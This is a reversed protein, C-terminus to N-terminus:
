PTYARYFVKPQAPDLPLILTVNTGQLVNTSFSTWTRFDASSQVVYSLGRKGQVDLSLLNGPLATLELRPAPDTPDPVDLPVYLNDIYAADAGISFNADKVYRWAFRNRGAGVNVVYRQWGVEGSWRQMRVGNVYFELFDWNAESSVKLDFAVAGALTNAAFELVSEQGNGLPGSRLAFRGAAATTSQLQWPATASNAWPPAALAAATFPPEFTYTATTPAFRATITYNRDMLLVLPNDTSTVTGEWGVFAFDRDPTAALSQTSGAPYPGSGPTVTGGAPATINLSYFEVRDNDVIVLSAQSQSGLVGGGQPNALELVVTEADEPDTDDILPVDFSKETEGAAFELTGAVSQYDSGAVASGDRTAYDVAAADGSPGTRRVVVAANGANEDARFVAASFAIASENDEITLTATLQGSRSYGTPLNTLILFVTEDGEPLTDDLVPVKFTKVTDNVAFQLTGQTATYDAGAQASGDRTAYDVTVATQLDGSRLVTITAEKANEAARYFAASFQLASLIFKEDGHIRAVRNRPLGNAHTFDGGIAMATDSQVALARVLADAGEGVEYGTDVSGNPNLRAYRLREVGGVETFDGAVLVKADPQVAVAWVSADVGTGPDFSTDLSGDANLRAIGARDVNNFKTFDGGLVIRGDAAVAVARVPADPGTGSAFTTDLSGDARFRAIYNYAGGGAGSFAGAVVVQNDAQVALAYVGGPAGVGPDFTTDISGDAMLRAIGTRAVGSMNGFDGGVVITGDLGVGLARVIGDAGFGTQFATDITGDANVRAIRMASLNDYNRFEGGILIRGDAQLALAHVAADAGAGPNFFSDLYGDTHLRVVRNLVVGDFETFVGGALIKDDSQVAVTYVPGNAGQGPNFAFDVSGPTEDDVITVVANTIAGLVTTGALSGAPGKPNRLAVQFAENGEGLADDLVRVQITKATEGARFVLTGSGDPALVYADGLFSLTGSAALYDSGAKATDNTTAYDVSVPNVTGGAREITISVLREFENVRTEAAAFGLACDDDAIVVRAVAQPGLSTTSAANTALTLLFTENTEVLVDDLLRVAVTLNSVGAGLTVTLNTAVFDEGGIATENTATLDVVATGELIGLRRLTIIANTGNENARFEAQSFEIATDDDILTLTAITQGGLPIGGGQNLLTLTITEGAEVELDDLIAIPLYQVAEGAAFAVTGNTSVFDVGPTATGASVVYDVTTAGNANGTRRIPIRAVGVSEVATYATQAFEITGDNDDITVTASGGGITAGPTELITMVVDERYEQTPDDIPYVPIEIETVGPAFVYVNTLTQYDSGNSAYGGLQVLVRQSSNTTGERTLLFMGPKAGEERAEASPASVSVISADDDLITYTHTKYVDFQGNMPIGVILSNTVVENTQVPEGVENTITIDNTTVWNSIWSPPELLTIVLTRNSEPLDNPNIPLALLQTRNTYPDDSYPFVVMGTATLLPYDVDPLATGGTVKYHVTIPVDEAAPNASISVAMLAAGWDEPGSGTLFNFGVAPLSGSDDDAITVAAQYEAGLTYDTSPLVEIIAYESDERLRDDIPTLTVTIRGITPPFRLRTGVATYDGLEKATGTMRVKVILERNVDGSRTLVFEGTEAPEAAANDTATVSVVPLARDLIAVTATNPTGINYIPSDTLFVEVTKGGDKAGNDRPTVLVSVSPQGAPIVASGPLTAYDAGPVATGSVFYNVTLSRTLDGQRTFVFTGTERNLEAGVKDTAVVTVTPLDNDVITVGASGAAIDYAADAEISALVQENGELYLDPRAVVPLNVFTAGAPLTVTTPLAAYDSGGTATGEIRLKVTVPESTLGSRTLVLLGADDQNETAVPSLAVISVIPRTAPKASLTMRAEGPWAPLYDSYNQFWTDVGNVPLLEWGSYNIYNTNTEMTGSDGNTFVIRMVQLPYMLTLIAQKDISDTVGGPPKIDVNVTVVGTPFDVAYFDYTGESDGFPTPVVNTQTVINTLDEYDPGAQASGGLLFVAQLATNTDGTRTLAFTGATGAVADANTLTLATVVTRPTALFQVGEADRDVLVIPSNFNLPKTVYGNLFASVPHNGAALNVLTFAGDSDTYTWQYNTLYEYSGETLAGNSIRVDRVPNGFTDAVVGSIRLTAPSGVTVVVHKSTTGGKMDSVDCRVVYEGQATFMRSVVPTNGVIQDDSFSWYYSLADANPDSAAATFQIAGGVAVVNTSATVTVEPPVNDTDVGTHVVIDYWTEEGAGGKAVPTIYVKSEEDAYTRGVLIAADDRGHRSGPTTDLLDSYGNAQQWSAWHLEVGNQEWPNTTIRTRASVWYTRQADKPVRLAYQRGDVLHPVDHVYIRNTGSSTANGIYAETLWGLIKKGIANFHGRFASVQTSSTPGEGGGSGMVDYIDGYEIDDGVGIVSDHGVVSDIDFPNNNPNPPLVPRRTEWFNAHGLGYVHGLEHIALGADSGQLWTVGGGGLGGWEFGPVNPHRMMIIDYTTADYGASLAAAVADMLIAGPGEFSYDLKPYPLTLVPSITAILATKNYSAEVYFDNVEHMVAQAESETIPVRTDDPFVLRLYLVRKTGCSGNPHEPPPMTWVPNDAPGAGGASALGVRAQRDAEALTTNLEAGHSADCVRIWQGGFDMLLPPRGAAETKGCVACGAAAAAQGSALVAASEDADLVRAPDEHLALVEGVAIGHVAINKQTMQARRSGYVYARFVRGSGSLIFYRMKGDPFERYDSGPRPSVWYVELNGRGSIVEELLPQLEQPLAQRVRWPVARELAKRPNVKIERALADLRAVALQRGTELDPRGAGTEPELWGAAWADFAAYASVVEAAPSSAPTRAATQAPAAHRSSPVAEITLLKVPPTPSPALAEARGGPVPANRTRFGAQGLFVLVMAASLGGVIWKAHKM